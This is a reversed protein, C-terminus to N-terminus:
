IAAATRLVSKAHVVMASHDGRELAERNILAAGLCIARCGAKWYAQAEHPKIGGSAVWSVGPFVEAVAKVYNHGGLSSVPFLKVASGGSAVARSIETPTLAGPVIPVGAERALEVVGPELSPSVLFRAGADVAIAAQSPTMVTGAGINARGAASLSRIVVAADPVTFTIELHGVGADSLASGIFHAEATSDARIVAVIGKPAAEAHM